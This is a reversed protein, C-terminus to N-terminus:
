IRISSAWISVSRLLKLPPGKCSVNHEPPFDPASVSFNSRWSVYSHLVKNNPMRKKKAQVDNLNLAAHSYSHQRNVQTHRLASM